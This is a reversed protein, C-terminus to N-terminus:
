AQLCCLCMHFQVRLLQVHSVTMCHLFQELYRTEKISGHGSMLYSVYHVGLVTRM